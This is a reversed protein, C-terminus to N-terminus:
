RPEEKAAELGDKCRDCTMGPKWACDCPEKTFLSPLALIENVIARGMVNVVLDDRNKIENRVQQLVKAIEVELFGLIEERKPHLRGFFASSFRREREQKSTPM